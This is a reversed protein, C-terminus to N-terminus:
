DWYVKKGTTNSPKLLDRFPAMVLVTALFPEVQNVLCFWSRIDATSPNDPMPFIKKIASLMDDRPKYNDFGINYGVFDVYQAFKFSELTFLTIGNEGCLYLYDSVYYFAEEIGKDYLFM